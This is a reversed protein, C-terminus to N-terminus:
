QGLWFERLARPFDFNQFDDTSHYCGGKQPDGYCTHEDNDVDDQSQPHCGECQYSRPYMVRGEQETALADAEEEQSVRFDQHSPPVGHWIQAKESGSIMSGLAFLGMDPFLVSGEPSVHYKWAADVCEDLSQFESVPFSLAVQFDGPVESLPRLLVISTVEDEPTASTASNFTDM